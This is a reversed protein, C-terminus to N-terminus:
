SHRVQVPCKFQVFMNSLVFIFRCKQQNNARLNVREREAIVVNVVHELVLSSQTKGCFTNIHAKHVEYCIIEGFLISNKYSLHLANVTRYL